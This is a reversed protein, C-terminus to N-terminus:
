SIREMKMYLEVLWNIQFALKVLNKTAKQM